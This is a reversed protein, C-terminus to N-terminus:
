VWRTIGWACRRDRSRDRAGRKGSVCDDKVVRGYRGMPVRARWAAYPIMGNVTLTGGTATELAAVCRLFTTKGCGSPGIFSVFAGRNIALNIDQLAHVPGDATQFVLNM